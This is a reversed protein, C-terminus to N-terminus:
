VDVGLFIKVTNFHLEATDNVDIAYGGGLTVVTPINYFSDKVIRDRKKMGEKTIKLNGLKDKEYPDVGAQYLCVEPQWNVVKKLGRDLQILYEDDSTGYPLGIDLSSKQKPYPYIGEEHISFTFVTKDEEFIKATGNGQHLDCDIIAVKKIGFKKQLIKTAVALDNFVCFGEGHDAFSHHWGGGLHLGVKEKLAIESAMITGGVAYLGADRVEENFPLELRLIEDYSLSLNLVREVYGKEHVLELEEKTAPRSEVFELDKINLDKLFNRLISYKRTNFPHEGLDIEYKQSYILKM